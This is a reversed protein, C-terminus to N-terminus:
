STSSPAAITACPETSASARSSRRPPASCCRRWRPRCRRPASPCTAGGRLHGPRAGVRDGPPRGRRRDPRAHQHARRRERAVGGAHGRGDDRVEFRLEEDEWLSVSVSGAGEAHKAANQLAELCAFYVASEIEPAYRGLGNAHVAVRLPGGQAADRLAEGIGREVLVPPVLGRALSRVEDVADDVEHSLERLRKRWGSPIRRYSTARSSWSSRRAVGAAAARRRAPRARHATAGPGGGVHDAGRSERLERLSSRLQTELRQNELAMLAFGAAVDTIVPADVLAPDHVLIAVRGRSGRVETVARDPGFSPLSVPSGPPTPGGARIRPTGTCWRSRHIAWRTPSPMACRRARRGAGTARARAQLAGAGRGPPRSAARRRLGGRLGAHLAARGCRPGRHARLGTLPAQGRHIGGRRGNAPDAVGVVPLLGVRTLRTGRALRLVLALAVAAYYWRPRPRSSPDHVADIFGPESGINWSRTPRVTPAAAAGRTRSRSVADVFLVTPLFLVRRRDSGGARVLLRDVRAVLRGSPYALVVYVLLVEALWASVRGLSYLLSDGSEALMTPAWLLGSLVLLRGFRGGSAPQAHLAYLGAAIPAAIVLAHAIAAPLGRSPGPEPSPSPSPPSRCSGAWGAALRAMAAVPPPAQAPVHARHQTVAGDPTCWSRVSREPGDSRHTDLMRRTARGM